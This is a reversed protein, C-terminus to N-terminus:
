RLVTFGNEAFRSPKKRETAPTAPALVQYGKGPLQKFQLAGGNYPDSPLKHIYRPAVEELSAPLTGQHNLRYREVALAVEASRLRAALTAEKKIGSQLAPLLMRSFVAFRGFGTNFRAQMKQEAETTKALSAPFGTKTANILLEMMDLYLNLDRERLGSAAYAQYGLARLWDNPNNANGSVAGMAKFEQFSARFASIGIAREGNLGRELGPLGDAEAQALATNVAALQDDTLETEALVRELANLTIAVCAVSVLASIYVPETRLAHATALAAIIAQAAAEPHHTYAEYIAENKLLQVLSKILTLHPLRAAYGQTLDVPFRSRPMQAAQYLKLLVPRNTALYKGLDEALEPTMEDERGIDVGTPAAVMELAADMLVLAQNEKVPVSKYWRDLEFGSTPLGAARINEVRRRMSREPAIRLAILIGLLLAGLSLLLVLKARRVTM